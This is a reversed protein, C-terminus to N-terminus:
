HDGIVLVVAELFQLELAGNRIHHKQKRYYQQDYDSLVWMFDQERDTHDIRGGPRHVPDIPSLELWLGGLHIPILLRSTTTILRDAQIPLTIM